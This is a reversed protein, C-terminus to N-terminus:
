PEAGTAWIAANSPIFRGDSLHVGEKKIEVIRAEHVVEINHEVLKKKTIDVM